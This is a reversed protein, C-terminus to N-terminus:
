SADLLEHRPSRGAPEEVPLAHRLPAHRRRATVVAPRPLQEAVRAAGAPVASRTLSRPAAVTAVPGMQVPRALLFLGGAASLVALILLLDGSYFALLAAGVVLAASALRWPRGADISRRM